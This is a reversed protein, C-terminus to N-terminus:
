KRKIHLFPTHDSPDHLDYYICNTHIYESDIEIDDFKTDPWKSTVIDLIDQLTSGYSLYIDNETNDPWFDTIQGNNRTSYGM